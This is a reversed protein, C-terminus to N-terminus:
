EGVTRKHTPPQFRPPSLGSEFPMLPPEDRNQANGDTIQHEFTTVIAHLHYLFYFHIRLFVHFNIHKSLPIAEREELDPCGSMKMTRSM